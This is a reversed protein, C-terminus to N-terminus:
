VIEHVNMSQHRSGKHRTRLFHPNKQISWPFYLFKLGIRNASFNFSLQDRRSHKCIQEWWLENFRVVQDTHRRLLVTCEALGNNKPYGEQLYQQMQRDIVAVDDLKRRKCEAAEQYICTRRHKFVAFDCDSLYTMIWQDLPLTSVLQVSGDVWLSYSAKPFFLHPMVKHLKANRCPDRFERHIPRIIWDPSSTRDDLFAVFDAEGKWIDLAPKLDDYGRSIATYVIFQKM